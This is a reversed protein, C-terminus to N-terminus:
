IPASIKHLLACLQLTDQLAVFKRREKTTKKNKNKNKNKKKKKKNKEEKVQGDESALQQRHPQTSAHIFKKWVSILPLCL